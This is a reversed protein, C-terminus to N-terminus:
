DAASTPVKLPNLEKPSITGDKNKDLMKLSMPADEIEIASIIGDEDLDLAVMLPSPGPPPPPPTTGKPPPPQLEKRTLMGDGNKDLDGLTSSSKAIERPSLAGDHSSDLVALLPPPPPTAASASAAAVFALLLHIPSIKM